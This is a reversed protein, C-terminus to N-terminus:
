SAISRYLAAYQAAIREPAFRKVNEFGKEVLTKRYAEDRLIRLVGQRISEPDYPDVLCAGEGAVEPMSCLRSTIVPKGAAQAEVIPLGFGEYTSAFLVLDCTQYLRALEDNSLLAHQAFAIRSNRLGSRQEDDLPGVVELRCPIGTLAAVVRPLNKNPRTGVQLIVPEVGNFPKGNPKFESSVPCHIPHVKSPNCPVQEMIQSKTFESITTVAGVRGIPLRYWFLWLLWRKLGRNRVLSVCDAVTLITRKRPLLLALYHVDGTIHNIPGANRRAWLMNRIRNLIGRSEYPCKFVKARIDPPLHDRVDSFVRELSFHRPGPKREFYHVTIPEPM